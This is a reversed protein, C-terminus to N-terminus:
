FGSAFYRFITPLGPRAAMKLAFFHGASAPWFERIWKRILWEHM